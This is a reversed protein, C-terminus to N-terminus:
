RVSKGTRRHNEEKETYMRRDALIRIRATDEAEQPYVAYGCSVGIDLKQGDIEYPQLLQEEIRAKTAECRPLEMAASIILAFEDGGIRFAYDESRICKMIRSAVEKLLKDGMDHGYTDNVPKFHDLDLYYLVFPQKREEKRHLITSFCRENFLGTLGDTNALNELEYRKGIDQAILMVMEPTGNEAWEVAIVNLIKYINETRGGYEIKLFSRGQRLTRQLYERGLLQGLKMSEADSLVVYRRDVADILEQYRGERPYLWCQDMHRYYRYSGDRFDVIVYSDVIQTMGFFLHDLQEKQEVLATQLMQQEQLRLRAHQNILHLILTFLMVTLILLVTVTVNIIRESGADIASAQVIGVISWDNIGLPQYVLYYGEVKTQFAASGPEGNAISNQVNELTNESFHVGQLFSFFNDLNQEEADRPKLSLVVDGGANVLYCSSQDRYASKFIQEEVVQVDYSVAAGTYTVGNMTFSETLPVAFVIRDEGSSSTYKSVVPQKKEYVRLFVNQISDATGGRGSATLYDCSENFMYFDQYNWSNKRSAYSKWECAVDKSESIHRLNADWDTLVNWNRQAFITFTQGTQAYTALLQKASGKYIEARLYRWYFVLALLMFVIVIGTIVFHKQMKKM